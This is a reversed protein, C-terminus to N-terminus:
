NYFNKRSKKKSRPAEYNNMSSAGGMRASERMSKKSKPKSDKHYWLREHLKPKDTIINANKRGNALQSELQNYEEGNSKTKKGFTRKSGKKNAAFSVAQGAQVADKVSRNHAKVMKGNRMSAKVKVTKSM